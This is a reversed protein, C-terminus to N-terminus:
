AISLGEYSKPQIWSHVLLSYILLSMFTESRSITIIVLAFTAKALKTTIHSSHASFDSKRRIAKKFLLLAYLVMMIPKQRSAIRRKEWGGRGLHHEHMIKPLMITMTKHISEPKFFANIQM